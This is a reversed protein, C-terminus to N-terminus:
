ARLPVVLLLVGCRTSPEQKPGRLPLAPSRSRRRAEAAGLEDGVDRETAVAVTASAQVIADERWACVAYGVDRGHVELARQGLRLVGASQRRAERALCAGADADETDALVAMLLTLHPVHVTIRALLGLTSALREDDASSGTVDAGRRVAEDYARSLADVNLEDAGLPTRPDSWPV